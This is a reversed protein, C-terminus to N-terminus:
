EGQTVSLICDRLTAIDRATIEPHDIHYAAHRVVELSRVIQAAFPQMRPKCFADPFHRLGEYLLLYGTRVNAFADRVADGRRPADPTWFDAGGQAAEAALCLWSSFLPLLTEFTPADLQQFEDASQIRRLIGDLEDNGYLGFARISRSIAAKLPAEEGFDRKKSDHFMRDGGGPQVEEFDGVRQTTTSLLTVKPITKDVKTAVANIARAMAEINQSHATHWRRDAALSQLLYGLRDEIAALGEARRGADADVQTRHSVSEIPRHRRHSVHPSLSARGLSPANKDFPM